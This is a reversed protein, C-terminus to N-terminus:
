KKVKAAIEREMLQVAYPDGIQRLLKLRATDRMVSCPQGTTLPKGDPNLCYVPVSLGVVRAAALRHSGSWAQYGSATRYVLLPRGTWGRRRMDTVLASFKAGDTVHHLPDITDASVTSHVGACTRAKGHRRLTHRSEDIYPTRSM